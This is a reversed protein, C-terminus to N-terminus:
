FIIYNLKIKKKLKSFFCGYFEKGLEGTCTFSPDTPAEVFSSCPMKGTRGSSLTMFPSSFCFCTIRLSNLARDSYVGGEKGEGKPIRRYSTRSFLFAVLSGSVYSMELPDFALPYLSVSFLSLPVVALFYPLPSGLPSLLGPPSWVCDLARPASVTAVLARSGWSKLWGSGDGRQCGTGLWPGLAHRRADSPTPWPPLTDGPPLM